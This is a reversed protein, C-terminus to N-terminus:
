KSTIKKFFKIAFGIAISIGMIPLAIPLIVGISGVVSNATSQLGQALIDNIDAASTEAALTSVASLAMVAAVAFIMVIRKKM